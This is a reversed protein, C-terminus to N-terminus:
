LPKKPGAPGFQWFVDRFYRGHGPAGLPRWFTEAAIWLCEESVKRLSEPGNGPCKPPKQPPGAFRGLSGHLPRAPERAARVRWGKNKPLVVLFGVLVCLIKKAQSNLYFDKSLLSFASRFFLSFSLFCLLATWVLLSQLTLTLILSVKNVYLFVQCPMAPVQPKPFGGKPSRDEILEESTKVFIGVSGRRQPELRQELISAVSLKLSSGGISFTWIPARLHPSWPVGPLEHVITEPHRLLDAFLLGIVKEWKPWKTQCKQWKKRWKKGFEKQRVGKAVPHDDAITFM